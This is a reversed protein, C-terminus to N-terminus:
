ATRQVTHDRKRENIRYFTSKRLSHSDVYSEELRGEDDERWCRVTPPLDEEREASAVVTGDPCSLEVLKKFAGQRVAIELIKEAERSSVGMISRVNEVYVKHPNLQLLLSTEKASLGSPLLSSITKLFRDFLSM